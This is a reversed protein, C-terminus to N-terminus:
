VNVVGLNNDVGEAEGGAAGAINLLVVVAPPSVWQVVLRGRSNDDVDRAEGAISM